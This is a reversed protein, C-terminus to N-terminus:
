KKITPFSKKKNASRNSMNKQSMNKVLKKYEDKFEDKKMVKFCEDNKRVKNIMEELKESGNTNRATNAKEEEEIKIPERLYEGIRSDFLKM